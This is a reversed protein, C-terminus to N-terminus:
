REFFTSFAFPLHKLPDSAAIMPCELIKAAAGLEYFFFKFVRQM